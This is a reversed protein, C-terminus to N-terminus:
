RGRKRGRRTIRGGTFVATSHSAEFPMLAPRITVSTGVPVSIKIKCRGVGTISVWGLGAIVIDHASSKWGNGYLIYEKDVFPGIEQMRSFSTPPFFLQGAHKEQIEELRSADTPHLRVKNSVFFTFFFPRSDVLQLSALGGIMVAKGETVRLTVANIRENPIVVKLENPNLKTTLQGRNILGPTDIMTIGNPLRMKIFDLTTGPLNSVTAQPVFKNTKRSHRSSINRKINRREYNNELMRNIFSSKGVNAAGM